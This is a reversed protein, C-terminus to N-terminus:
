QSCFEEVGVNNLLVAFISVFDNWLPDEAFHHVLLHTAILVPLEDTNVTGKLLAGMVGRTSCITPQYAKSFAAFLKKGQEVQNPSSVESFAEKLSKESAPNGEEIVSGAIAQFQKFQDAQTKQKALKHNLQKTVVSFAAFLDNATRNQLFQWHSKLATHDVAM